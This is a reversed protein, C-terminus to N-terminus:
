KQYEMRAALFPELVQKTRRCKKCSHYFVKRNTLLSQFIGAKFAGDNKYIYIFSKALKNKQLKKKLHQCQMPSSIM